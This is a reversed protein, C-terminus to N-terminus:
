GGIAKMITEKNFLARGGGSYIEFAPNGKVKLQLLQDRLSEVEGRPFGTLESVTDAGNIRLTDRITANAVALLKENSLLSPEPATGPHCRPSLSEDPKNREFEPATLMLVLFLMGVAIQMMEKIIQEEPKKYVEKLAKLSSRIESSPKASTKELKEILAAREASLKDSNFKILNSRNGFTTDTEKELFLNNTKLDADIQKIRAEAFKRDTETQNEREIQITIGTACYNIASPIAFTWIYIGVPVFLALAIIYNFVKPGFELKGSCWYWKALSFIYWVSLDIFVGIVVAVIRQFPITSFSAFLSGVLFCSIALAINFIIPKMNRYDHLDIKPINM